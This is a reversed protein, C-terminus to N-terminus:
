IIKVKKVFGTTGPWHVLYLDIYDLSLKKLSTEFAKKASEYGHESYWMKTTVFLEERPYQKIARGIEEENEYFSATDIHRYGCQWAIQVADIAGSTAKYTGLGLLPM